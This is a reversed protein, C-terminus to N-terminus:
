NIRGLLQSSFFALSPCNHIVTCMILLICSLSGRSLETIFCLFHASGYMVNGKMRKYTGLVAQKILRNEEAMENMKDTIENWVCPNLAYNTSLQQTLRPSNNRLFTQLFISLPTNPRNLYSPTAVPTANRLYNQVNKTCLSATPLKYELARICWTYCPAFHPQLQQYPNGYMQTQWHQNLLPRSDENTSPVHKQGYGDTQTLSRDPNSIDLCKNMIQNIAHGDDDDDSVLGEYKKLKLLNMKASKFADLLININKASAM